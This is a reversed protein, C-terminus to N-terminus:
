DITVKVNCQPSVGPILNLPVSYTGAGISPGDINILVNLIYTGPSYTKSPGYYRVQIGPIFGILNHDKINVSNNNITMTIEKKESYAEDAPAIIDIPSCKLTGITNGPSVNVTINCTSIIQPIKDLALTYKGPAVTSGGSITINIANEGPYFTQGPGSYRIEIGNSSSLLQNASLKLTSTSNLVLTVSRTESFSSGTITNIIVDFCRFRNITSVTKVIVRHKSTVGEVLNLPITYTDSPIGMSGKIIVPIIHTGPVYTRPSGSYKIEIGNIAGLLQEDTLTIALSGQKLTMTIDKPRTFSTGSTTIETIDPNESVFISPDEIVTFWIECKLKGSNVNLVYNGPKTPAVGNIRVDFSGVGKRLTKTGMMRVNLGHRNALLANDTLKVDSKLNYQIPIVADVILQNPNFSLSPYDQNAINTDGDKAMVPQAIVNLLTCFLLLLFTKVLSFDRM